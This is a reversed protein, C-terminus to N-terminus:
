SVNPLENKPWNVRAFKGLSEETLKPLDCFNLEADRKESLAAIEAVQTATLKPPNSPDIEYRVLNEDGPFPPTDPVSALAAEFQEASARAVCARVLDTDARKAQMDCAVNESQKDKTM